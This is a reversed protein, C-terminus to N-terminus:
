DAPQEPEEAGHNMRPELLGGNSIGLARLDDEIGTLARGRPVMRELTAIDESRRLAVLPRDRLFPDNRVLDGAFWLARSEIIVMDADLAAIHAQARARPGVKVEVQVLRWPTLVVASGVILLAAFRGLRRPDVAVPPAAFGAAAVVAMVGLWPHLYRYGWGHVQDPAVIWRFAVALAVSTICLKEAPGLRRWGVCGMCFLILLAPSLWLVFRAMSVAMMPGHPMSVARVPQPNPGVGEPADGWSQFYGYRTLEAPLAAPDGSQLAVALEPWIMWAGMAAVYCVGYVLAWGRGPFVGLLLALGFPAAFMAHVHVQHLGLALAGIAIAGMHGRAGGRLFCALWCMNLALHAPFSFGSAATAIFQPSVVMAAAGFLAADPRDPRLRRIVRYTAIAALGAMAPNLLAADGLLEAGALMLAYVPRYHSGWLAHPADILVFMPQLAEAIALAAPDLPALIRGELFIRSQFAPIFEDGSMDFNHHALVKAALAAAFAALTLLVPPAWAARRAAQAPTAASRRSAMWCALSLWLIVLGFSRDQAAFLRITAASGLGPSADIWAPLMRWVLGVAAFLGLAWLMPAMAGVDIRRDTPRTSSTKASM